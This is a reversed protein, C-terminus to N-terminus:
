EVVGGTKAVCANFASVQENYISIMSNLEATLEHIFVVTNNYENIMQNYTEGYKPETAEINTLISTLVLDIREIEQRYLEIKEKLTTDPSPCSSLPRGFAQVIVWVEDGEYIGRLVAVGIESFGEKLINERHGPSDMWANVVDESDSYNGLALNEGVLISEYGARTSLESIGNGDPDIHEFYQRSLIDAAKQYAAIALLRNPVLPTLNKKLREYNTWVIVGQDTLDSYTRPPQIGQKVPSSPEKSKSLSTQTAIDYLPESENKLDADTDPNKPKEADLTSIDSSDEIHLGGENTSVIIPAQAEQILIAPAIFLVIFGAAFFFLFLFIRQMDM